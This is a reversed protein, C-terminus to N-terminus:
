MGEVFVREPRPGLGPHKGASLWWGRQEAWGRHLQHTAAMTELLATLSAPRPLVVTSPVIGTPFPLGRPVQEAFCAERSGPTKM